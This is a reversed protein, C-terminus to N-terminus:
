SRRVKRLSLDLPKPEEDKAGNKIAARSNQLTWVALAVAHKCVAHRHQADGCGCFQWNTAITVPYTKGDGNTVYAAIETESFRTLTFSYAGTTVGEVGRQLRENDVKALIHTPIYTLALM